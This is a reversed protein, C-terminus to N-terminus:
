EGYGAASGRGRKEADLCDAGGAGGLNEEGSARRWAKRRRTATLRWRRNLVAWSSAHATASMSSHDCIFPKLTRCAASNRLSCALECSM